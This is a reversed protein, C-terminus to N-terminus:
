ETHTLHEKKLLEKIMYTRIQEPGDMNLGSLFDNITDYHPLEELSEVGFLKRLNEICEYKNFSDSM